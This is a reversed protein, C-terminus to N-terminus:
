KPVRRLHGLLLENVKAPADLMVWHGAEPVHVVQFDSVWGAPPTALAPDLYRERDGWVILTPVSVKAARARVSFIGRFSARYWDIMARQASPVMAASLVDAVVDPTLGDGLLAERLLRFDHRATIREPLAPLQFLWIYFSRRLQSLHRMQRVFGVPHVSNLLALCRVLRPRQMATAWALWGGVDHGVLALSERGWARGIAEVDEVFRERQYDAVRAPKDSQGAGRLDPAVALYGAAALAELQARWMNWGTPYGHLLVVLPAGEDGAYACHLSVDGSRVTRHRIDTPLDAAM